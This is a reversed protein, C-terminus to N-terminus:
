PKWQKFMRQFEPFNHRYLWAGYFRPTRQKANNAPPPLLSPPRKEPFPMNDLHRMFECRTKKPKM